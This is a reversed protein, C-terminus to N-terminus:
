ACFQLSIGIDDDSQKRYFCYNSSKFFTNESAPMDVNQIDVDQNSQPAYPPVFVLQLRGLTSAFEALTNKSSPM